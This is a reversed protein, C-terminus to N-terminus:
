AVVEECNSFGVHLINRNFYEPYREKFWRRTQAYAQNTMLGLKIVKIFEDIENKIEYESLGNKKGAMVIYREMTAYTPNNYRQLEINNSSERITIKYDPLAKRIDTIMQYENTGYISAQKEFKKTIVIEQERHNIVLNRM